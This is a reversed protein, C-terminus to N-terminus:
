TLDLVIQDARNAAEPNENRIEKTVKEVEIKHSKLSVLKTIDPQLHVPNSLIQNEAKRVRAEAGPKIYGTFFWVFRDYLGVVLDRISYAAKAIAGGM